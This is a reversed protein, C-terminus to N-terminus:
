GNHLARSWTNVNLKHQEWLCSAGNWTAVQRGKVDNAASRAFNYTVTNNGINDMVVGYNLDLVEDSFSRRAKSLQYNCYSM